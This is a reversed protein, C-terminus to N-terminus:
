RVIIRSQTTELGVAQGSSSTASVNALSILSEGQGISEFLLTALTGEGKLGKGVQPSSFGITCMGSANDINKLFPVKEGLQRMLGGEVVDKLNVVKSNYSLALSLNGIEQESRLNVALRFERKAPLKFNAPSLSIQNAAQEQLRRMQLAREAERIDLERGLIDEEFAVQVGGTSESEVDVWLPRSDESTVPISRIIYPRITLIVDTQELTTDEAGFLRGLVPIDKLGPIGKLTKREEDRLLGAILNTEGNKLRLVNKVERTNIIPIDAYGKGGISTVKLELTLTVEKEHHVTPKLKVEIGVDQQEFNMIPQQSVGGAAFPTFTTRPIPIKQGVLHRMEEDSVGRLRPQAIVKTDTDTELFQLFSVPLSISFNEAKSLDVNKLNFWGTSASETSAAQTGSYSLGVVNTDLSIGLQRLRLKSVEMIELDILVEAKPKDWARILKEALEVVQPTDRVTVSNLNKDFIIIPPKTTSRLMQSLSGLLEQASANSVYFTKICNVEYQMRKMPNDPVIIVTREDIIRSFNKSALCLSRLAQEFTMNVLEPAFPIDRFQEDFVLSIGASKGLALFISRLSTEVPFKLTLSEEKTKLKIPFEIKEKKPEAEKATETAAEQAERVIASDRPNYFLAKAYEAKAEEKKGQLVLKRAEQLHYLGAYIKARELALRYVPERPNELSAKEYYQVAEEWKKNMEAQTGLRYQPSLAACAWFISTILTLFVIKKM